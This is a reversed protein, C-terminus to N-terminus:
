DINLGDTEDSSDIEVSAILLKQLLNHHVKDILQNKRNKWVQAQGCENDTVGVPINGIPIGPICV